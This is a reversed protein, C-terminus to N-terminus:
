ELYTVPDFTDDATFLETLLRCARSFGNRNLVYLTFVQSGGREVTVGVVPKVAERQAAVLFRILGYFGNLDTLGVTSIGQERAFRCIEEPSRCGRLLSYHSRFGLYHQGM